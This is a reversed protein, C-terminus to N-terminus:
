VVVHVAPALLFNDAVFKAPLLLQVAAVCRRVAAVDVCLLLLLPLLLMLRGNWSGEVLNLQQMRKMLTMSLRMRSMTPMANAVSHLLAACINSATQFPPPMSPTIPRVLPRPLAGGTFIGFMCGSPVEIVGNAAVKNARNQM